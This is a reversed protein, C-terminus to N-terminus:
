LNVESELLGYPSVNELLLQDFSDDLMSNEPLWPYGVDVGLGDDQWQNHQEQPGDGLISRIFTEFYCESLEKTHCENIILGQGHQEYEDNDAISQELSVAQEEGLQQYYM